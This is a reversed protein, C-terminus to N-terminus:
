SQEEGRVRRDLEATFRTLEGLMDHCNQEIRQLFGLQESSLSGGALDRLLDVYGLISGIPNRLDHSLTHALRQLEDAPRDGGPQRERSPRRRTRRGEEPM